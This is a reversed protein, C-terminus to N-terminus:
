NSTISNLLPMLWPKNKLRGEVELSAESAGKSNVASISYFYPIGTTLRQRGDSLFEHTYETGSLISKSTGTQTQGKTNSWSVTYSDATSVANWKVVIRSNEGVTSLNTPTSPSGNISGVNPNTPNGGDSSGGGCASLLSLLLVSTILKPHM